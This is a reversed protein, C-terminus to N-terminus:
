SAGRPASVRPGNFDVSLLGNVGLLELREIGLVAEVVRQDEGRSQEPGVRDAIEGERPAVLEPARGLLEDVGDAIDDPRCTTSADRRHEAAQKEHRAEATVQMADLAVVVPAM